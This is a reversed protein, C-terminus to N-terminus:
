QEYNVNRDDSRTRRARKQGDVPKWGLKGKDFISEPGKIEEKKAEMGDAATTTTDEAVAAVETTSNIINTNEKEEKKADAALMAELAMVLPDDMDLEDDGAMKSDILGYKDATSMGKPGEGDTKSKMKADKEM